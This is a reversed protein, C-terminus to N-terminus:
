WTEHQLMRTFHNATIIGISGQLCRRVGWTQTYDLCYRCLMATIAGGGFGQVWSLLCAAEAAKAISEYLSGGVRLLYYPIYIRAILLWM